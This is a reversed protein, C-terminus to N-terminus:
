LCVFLCVFLRLHIGEKESAIIAVDIYFSKVM